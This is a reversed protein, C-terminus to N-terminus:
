QRGLFPDVYVCIVHTQSRDGGEANKSSSVKASSGLLGAALARVVTGWVADVNGCTPVIMWQLIM